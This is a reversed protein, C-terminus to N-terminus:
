AEWFCIEVLRSSGPVQAEGPYGLSVNRIDTVGVRARLRRHSHGFFWVNPQYRQIVDSLDSHFAATLADMAGAAAPHPGHHTVVVTRGEEGAFHPAGLTSVLWCRHDRHVALTDDPTIPVRRRPEVMEASLPAQEPDAKMIRHYDQM